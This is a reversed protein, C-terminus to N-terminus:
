SVVPTCYVGVPRTIGRFTKEGLDHWGHRDELLSHTFESIVCGGPPCLKEMRSALNITSGLATYDVRQTSGVDGVVASGSNVAIRLQIPPDFAGELNLSELRQLMGRAARVARAAHDDQAHPAGFFAMIADGIFKDLTGGAGFVEKLMEEFLRNLLDAVGAPTLQESRATFGVIDAFLVTLEFERPRLRLEGPDLTDMLQEVVAPSHYRELRRRLLEEGKLKESLLWRQISAAVLNALTSFFSLEEEGRSAWHQSPFRADAYLVGVVQEENWLPVAVATRIEKMRISDTAAFRPDQQADATQIALKEEFARRCITRSIWSQSGGPPQRPRDRVASDVLLLEGDGDLDVLLALREISDLYRFVVEQVRLFIAEISASRNLAQAIEVLDALRSNLTGPPLSQTTTQAAGTWKSKLEVVSRTLVLAESVSDPSSVYIAVAGLTLIDGAQLTQPGNLPSGNLLTGNKSGLDEVRWDGDHSRTVRAHRRSVSGSDLSLDCEASRGIAFTDQDILVARPSGQEFDFELKLGPM